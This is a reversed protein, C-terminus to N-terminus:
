LGANYNRFFARLYTARGPEDLQPRIAAYAEYWDLVAADKDALETFVQEMEGVTTSPTVFVYRQTRSRAVAASGDPLAM